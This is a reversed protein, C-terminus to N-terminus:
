CVEAIVTITKETPIAFQPDRENTTMASAEASPITTRRSRAVLVDTGTMTNIVVVAVLVIVVMLPHLADVVHHHLLVVVSIANPEVVLTMAGHPLPPLEQGSNSVMDAKAFGQWRILGQYCLSSCVEVKLIEGDRGFRRNHM